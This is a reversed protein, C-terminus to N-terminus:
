TTPKPCLSQPTQPHTTMMPPHLHSPRLSFVNSLSNRPFKSRYPPPYHSAKDAQQSSYVYERYKVSSYIVQGHLALTNPGPNMECGCAELWVLKADVSDTDSLSWLDDDVKGSIACVDVSKSMADDEMENMAELMSEVVLDTEVAQASQGGEVTGQSDLVDANGDLDLDMSIMSVSAFPSQSEGEQSQNLQISDTEGITESTENAKSKALRQTHKLERDSPMLKVKVSADKLGSRVGSHISSQLYPTHMCHLSLVVRDFTIPKFLLSVFEIIITVESDTYFVGDENGPKGSQYNFIADFPLLVQEKGDRAIRLLELYYHQHRTDPLSPDRCALSSCASAYKDTHDLKLLCDALPVLVNATLLHWSEADQIQCSDTLLPEAREVGWSEDLLCCASLWSSRCLTAQWCSQICCFSNRRIGGVESGMIVHMLEIAKESTSERGPEMLGCEYGITYLKEWAYKWLEARMVSIMHAPVTELGLTIADTTDLSNLAQICTLYVWVDDAGCVLPLKNESHIRKRWNRQCMKMMVGQHRLKPFKSSRVLSKIGAKRRAKRERRGEWLLNFQSVCLCTLKLLIFHATCM